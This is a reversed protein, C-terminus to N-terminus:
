ENETHSIRRPIWQQSLKSILQNEQYQIM